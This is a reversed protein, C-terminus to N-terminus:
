AALRVSVEGSLCRLTGAETAVLLAGDADLGLGDGEVVTAGSAVRVRRGRTLDLREWDGRLPAFGQVAFRELGSLLRGLVASAVAHRDVPRGLVRSLDTWPQDIGSAARAPMQVNVGVGVVALAPGNAEATMEILIGALKRSSWLVDNPWKLGIGEAGLSELAGAVLVGVAVSLPGLAAPALDFRWLVSAYLSAGYPSVWGRGRRGRGETQHEALCVGGCAAGQAARQLLLRNTSDVSPHLELAAVLARAEAPMGALVREAELPEFPQAVQYGKGPVAFVEVGLGEIERVLNWVSGRSLGLAQGLAQGSHFRGDALLRLLQFRPHM